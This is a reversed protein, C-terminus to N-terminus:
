AEVCAELMDSKAEFKVNVDDRTYMTQRYEDPGGPFAGKRDMNSHDYIAKSQSIFIEMAENYNGALKSMKRYYDWQFNGLYHTDQLRGPDKPGGSEADDKAFRLRDELTPLLGYQSAIAEAQLEFFPFPLVSHPLGLFSLSPYRAHWLQGYLPAVRREGAVCRWSSGLNSKENIFPFDYDYGTCVVITDIDEVICAESDGAFQVSSVDVRVTRPVLTVNGLSKPKEDVLLPPCTSDSLYVKNAHMSIERALDTGSARAGICLVNRGAFSIPDDYEIAHIVKGSFPKFDISSMRVPVFYHGNCVCVMDFTEELQQGEDTWTVNIKSWEEHEDLIKVQTVECNFHMFQSLNFERTYDSLYSHVERHTVFSAGDKAGFPIKKTNEWRGWPKERYGMIERPLNTRLNKYMPRDKSDPIHHWVGGVGPITDSSCFDDGDDDHESISPGPQKELVKIKANEFTRSLVRAAALGSAGAGIIAVNINQPSTAM